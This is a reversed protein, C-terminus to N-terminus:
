LVINLSKAIDEVTRLDYRKMRKIIYHCEMYDRGQKIYTMEIRDILEEKKNM